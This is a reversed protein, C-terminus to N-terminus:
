GSRRAVRGTPGLALPEGLRSELKAKAVAEGNVFYIRNQEAIIDGPVGSVRKGFPKPKAGFHKVLLPSTPPDFLIIDGRHVPAGRTVWIAWYPLSPSVNIMLAHGQAFAALSSLALAGAGLGGWLVLRQVFNPASASRISLDAPQM